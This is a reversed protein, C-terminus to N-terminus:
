AHMGHMEIQVKKYTIMNDESSQESISDSM